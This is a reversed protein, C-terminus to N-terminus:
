RILRLLGFFHPVTRTAIRSFSSRGTGAPSSTMRCVVWRQGGIRLVAGHSRGRYLDASAAGRM